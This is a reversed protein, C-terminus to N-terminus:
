VAHQGWLRPPSGRYPMGAKVQPSTTGVPTPTFRWFSWAEYRPQRQGWLRPPSGDPRGRARQRRSHQGWLRPPSGSRWALSPRIALTTGVPTPTFRPARRVIPLDPTTGVPTPTFRRHCRYHLTPRLQGWLRPPSGSDNGSNFDLSITTGVPTPTFRRLMGSGIYPQPQGWLRPPSGYSVSELLFDDLTTGVPTPTFRIAVLINHKDM